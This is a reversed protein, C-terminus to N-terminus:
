VDKWGAILQEGVLMGHGVSLCKEDDRWELHFSDERKTIILDIEPFKNGSSDMYVIKYQGEFGVEPGGYAEGTGSGQEAHTWRAKLTGNDLWKTYVVTGINKPQSM